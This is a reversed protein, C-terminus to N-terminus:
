GDYGGFGCTVDPHDPVEAAQHQVIDCRQSVAHGEGMCARATSGAGCAPRFGALLSARPGRGPSTFM